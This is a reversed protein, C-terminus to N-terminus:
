VIWGQGELGERGVRGKWARALTYRIAVVCTNRTRRVRTSKLCLGLMSIAANQLRVALGDKKYTICCDRNDELDYRPGFRAKSGIWPGRAYGDWGDRKIIKGMEWM